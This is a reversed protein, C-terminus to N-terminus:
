TRRKGADADDHRSGSTSGRMPSSCCRSHSAPGASSTSCRARQRAILAGAMMAGTIVSVAHPPAAAAYLSGPVYLIDDIGLVVLNFLSSGILNGIALDLAGLRVAAITVTLEPLTTALAVLLTGVFGQTWGIERALATAIFPLWLSAAVVVASAAAYRWALARLGLSGQPPDPEPSQALARREYDYITRMAVAYLLFLLPTVLGSVHGIGVGGEDSLLLALGGAGLMLVAFGAGLAHGQSAVSYISASRHLGDLVAIMAYNLVCAGLVNGIAVEPARALTVASVGAVLEPLSTVVALLVMGIWGSSLGTIRAIQDGYRSLKAGASVIAGAALALQLWTWAVPAM